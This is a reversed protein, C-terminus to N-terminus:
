SYLGLDMPTDLYKLRYLHNNKLGYAYSRGNSAYTGLADTWSSDSDLYRYQFRMGTSTEKDIIAALRGSM